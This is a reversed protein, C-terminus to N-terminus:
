HLKEGDKTGSATKERRINSASVPIGEAHPPDSPSPLRTPSNLERLLTDHRLFISRPRHVSATSGSSVHSTAPSTTASTSSPHPFGTASGAAATHARRAPRRRGVLPSHGAIPHFTGRATTDHSALLAPPATSRLGCRSPLPRAGHRSVLVLAVAAAMPELHILPHGVKRQALAGLTVTRHDPHDAVDPDEDIPASCGSTSSCGAAM